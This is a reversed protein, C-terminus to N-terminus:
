LLAEEAEQTLIVGLGKCEPCIIKTSLLTVPPISSSGPPSAIEWLVKRGLCLPCGKYKKPNDLVEQYKPTM